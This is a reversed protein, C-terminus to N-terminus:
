RGGRRPMVPKTKAKTKVLTEEPKVKKPPVPKYLDKAGLQKNKRLFELQEPTLPPRNPEFRGGRTPRKVPATKAPGGPGRRVVGREDVPRREPKPAPKQAKKTGTPNSINDYGVQSRKEKLKDVPKPSKGMLIKGKPM